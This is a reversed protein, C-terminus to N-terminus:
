KQNEQTQFVKNTRNNSGGISRPLIHHEEVLGIEDKLRRRNKGQQRGQGHGVLQNYIKKYDMISRNVNSAYKCISTNILTFDMVYM